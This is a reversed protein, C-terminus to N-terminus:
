IRTPYVYAVVVKDALRVAPQSDLQSHLARRRPCAWPPSGPHASCVTLVAHYHLVLVVSVEEFTLEEEGGRTSIYRMAVTQPFPPAQRKQSSTSGPAPTM